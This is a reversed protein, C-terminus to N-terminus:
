FKPCAYISNSKGRKCFIYSMNFTMFFYQDNEQRVYNDLDDELVIRHSVELGLLIKKKTKLKLGVSIPFTIATNKAGSKIYQYETDQINGNNSSLKPNTKAIGIGGAIYPSFRMGYDCLRLPIFNFEFQANLDFVPSTSQLQRVNRSSNESFKDNSYLTGYLFQGRLALFKAFNYRYFVGFAPRTTAIDIDKIFITGNGPGGGFDGLLHSTGVSVGIEHQAAIESICFMLCITIFLNKM